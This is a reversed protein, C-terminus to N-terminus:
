AIETIIPALMPVVTVAHIIDIKRNESLCIFLRIKGRKANATGKIKELLAFLRKSSNIKPKENMNKPNVVNRSFAMCPNPFMICSDDTKNGRAFILIKEM